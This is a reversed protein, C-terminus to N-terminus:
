ADLVELRRVVQGLRVALRLGAPPDSAVLEIGPVHEVERTVHFVTGAEALDGTSHEFELVPFGHARLAPLMLVERAVVETGPLPIKLYRPGSGSSLTLRFVDAEDSPIWEVAAVNRYLSRAIREALAAQPRRSWRSSGGATVTAMSCASRPSSH